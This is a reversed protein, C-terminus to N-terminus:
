AKTCVLIGDAYLGTTFLKGAEPDWLGTSSSPYVSGDSVFLTQVSYNAHSPARKTIPYPSQKDDEGKTVGTLTRNAIEVVWSPAKDAKGNIFKILGPFSPHGAVILRGDHTYDINDASFPMKVATKYTLSVGGNEELSYLQVNASSCAVIAVEKRDPSLAVGNAFPIRKAVISTRLEGSAFDLHVVNGLPMALVSELVPMFYKWPSSGRLTFFHDNSVLISTPSLAAVSNGAWFMPHYLHRTFVPFPTLYPTLNIPPLTSTLQMGAKLTEPDIGIKEVSTAVRDHNVVFLTSPKGPAGPIIDLGLPHFDLGGPWKDITIREVSVPKNSDDAYTLVYIGGKGTPDKM